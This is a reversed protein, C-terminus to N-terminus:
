ETHAVALLVWGVSSQEGAEALGLGGTKGRDFMGGASQGHQPSELRHPYLHGLM